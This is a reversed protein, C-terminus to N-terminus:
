HLVIMKRTISESGATMRYLYVGPSAVQGNDDRGDWRVKYFGTPQSRDVLMKIRQGLCNFVQIKVQTAIPLEYEIIMRSSQYQSNQIFPNPYNQSLKFKDPVANSKGVVIRSGGRLLVQGDLLMKDLQVASTGQNENSAVFKLVALKTGGAIPEVNFVAVQIRGEEENCFFQAGEPLNRSDIGKLQMMNHDYKFDIDVSLVDFENPLFLPIEFMEEAQVFLEPLEVYELAVHKGQKLLQPNSWGGHVNGLLIGTFNQDVYSTQLNTFVLSDPKFAWEGVHSTPMKALGIAYQAILAADYATVQEDRSVDAAIQQYDSLIRLGVAAQAALAADYTTIDFDGIDTDMIKHAKITYNLESLLHSFLYKGEVDTQDLKQVGGTLTLFVDKIPNDNEFYRCNGSIYHTVQQSSQVVEAKAQLLIGDGYAYDGGTRVSKTVYNDYDGPGTPESIGTIIIEGNSK